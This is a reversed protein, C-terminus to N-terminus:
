TASCTRKSYTKTLYYVLLSNYTPSLVIVLFPHTHMERKFPKIQSTYRIKLSMWTSYRPSDLHNHQIWKAKSGELECKPAALNSSLVDGLSNLSQHDPGRPNKLKVSSKGMREPLITMSQGMSINFMFFRNQLYGYIDKDKYFSTFIMVYQGVGPMESVFAPKEKANVFFSDDKATSQIVRQWSRPTSNKGTGAVNLNCYQYTKIISLEKWM